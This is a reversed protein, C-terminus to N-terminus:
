ETCVSGGPFIPQSAPDFYINKSNSQGSAEDQVKVENIWPSCRRGSIFHLQNGAGFYRAPPEGDFVFITYESGAGGFPTIVMQCRWESGGGPYECESFFVNFDVAVNEPPTTPQAITEPTNTPAPTPTIPVFTIVEFEVPAGFPKGDSTVVQWASTYTAPLSPARLSLGLTAQEGTLVASDLVVAEGLETEYDFTEGSVYEFTAGAPLPCSGSNELTLNMEFRFGVAAFVNSTVPSTYQEVLSVERTCNDLFAATADVTPFPSPVATPSPTQTPVSTATANPTATPDPAEATLTAAFAGLQAETTADVDATPSPEATAPPEVSSTAAALLIPDATPTAGGSGFMGSAALGGGVVALILVVAAVIGWVPWKKPVSPTATANSPEVVTAEYPRSEATYENRGAATQVPLPTPKDQLVSLPMGVTLRTDVNRMATRLARTFAHVSPYRDDPSKAMCKLLIEEIAPPIAPNLQSPPKPPENVHKLVLALATDADFPLQGAVLQYFLVGLSYLDSREDAGQGVGQEPPMYAATGIMAGTATYTPGSIMKAIGFDTLVATGRESLMINAPKIDRHLMGRSHAYSLADGVELVIQIAQGLPMIQGQAALRAQADKLTGGGIYAMIIYYTEGEIDFDFVDIINPHSLVAMAQAERRFRHLFDEDDALFTHMLKIAVYRDLNEHYAKYVEAMGGRGLQEVIKYKGLYQGILSQHTM